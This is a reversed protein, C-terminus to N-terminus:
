VYEFDHGVLEVLEEHTMKPLPPPLIEWDEICSRLTEIERDSFEKAFVHDYDDIMDFLTTKIYDCVDKDSMALFQKSYKKYEDWVPKEKVIIALKAKKGTEYENKFDFCNWYEGHFNEEGEWYGDSLQTSLFDLIERVDDAFDCKILIKRDSSKKEEKIM